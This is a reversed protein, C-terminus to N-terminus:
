RLYDDDIKSEALLSGALSGRRAVCEFTDVGDLEVYLPRVYSEIQARGAAELSM